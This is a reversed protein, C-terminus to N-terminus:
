ECEYTKCTSEKEERSVKRYTREQGATEEQRWALVLVIPLGLIFLLIFNDRAFGRVLDFLFM